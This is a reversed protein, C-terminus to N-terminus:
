WKIFKHTATILGIFFMIWVGWRVIEAIFEFESMDLRWVYDGFITGSFDMEVVPVQPPVRLSAITRYYDFPISFPFLTTVNQSTRLRSFDLEMTGVLTSTVAAPIAQIGEWINTLQGPIAQVGEIVTNLAGRIGGVDTAINSVTNTLDGVWPPNATGPPNGTSPPYTIPPYVIVDDNVIDGPVVVDALTLTPNVVDNISHPIWIGIYDDDAVAGSIAQVAAMATAPNTIANAQSLIFDMSRIIANTQVTEVNVINHVIVQATSSMRLQNNNDLWTAHARTILNNGLRRIPEAYFTEMGRSPPVIALHSIFVGNRYINVRYSM